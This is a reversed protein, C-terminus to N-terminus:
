ASKRYLRIFGRSNNNQKNYSFMKIEHATLHTKLVEEIEEKRAPKQIYGEVGLQMCKEEIASSFEESSVLVIPTYHGSKNFNRLGNAIELGSIEPMNIDLFVLDYHRDLKGVADYGSSSVDVRCGFTGLLESLFESDIRNDDILLIRALYRAGTSSNLMTTDSAM